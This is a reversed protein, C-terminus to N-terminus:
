NFESPREVHWSTLKQFAVAVGLVLRDTGVRGAIQMSLPLGDRDFGCPVVLSPGGSVTFPMRLSPEGTFGFSASADSFRPAGSVEGATILVDVEDFLKDMEAALIAKKRIAQVYDAASLFAGIILRHRGIKGYRYPDELLLKEHNAYGETLLIIRGCADLDRLDPSEINAVSAGADSFVALAARLATIVQPDVWVAGNFVDSLVGIRVRALDIDPQSAERCGTMVDLLLSCDLASRAMPGPEGLSFSLPIIGDRPLLGATPKLGTIGCYASPQRISGGADTGIAGACFGAAVAAGSGSSSGGPIRDLSWPNRAPPWPLDFSPGGYSFEYQAHKSLFVAGADRFRVVLEADAQSVNDALVASHASTPFGAIQVVDKVGIPVGHLPGRVRGQAREEDAQRAQLLAEETMVTLSSCLRDDYKEIRALLAETWEVSSLGNRQLLASGEAIGLWALEDTM